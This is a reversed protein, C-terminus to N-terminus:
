KEKNKKDVVFFSRHNKKKFTFSIINFFLLLVLSAVISFAVSAKDGNSKMLKLIQIDVQCVEKSDFNTQRTKSTVCCKIFECTKM